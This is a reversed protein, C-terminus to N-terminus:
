EDGAEEGLIRVADEFLRAIHRRIHGVHLTISMVPPYIGNREQTEEWDSGRLLARIGPLGTVWVFTEEKPYQQMMALAKCAIHGATRAGMEHALLSAFIHLSVVEDLSFSRSTGNGVSPACPFFGKSVAVNFQSRDLQAMRMALPTRVRYEPM